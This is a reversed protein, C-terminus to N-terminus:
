LVRTRFSVALITLMLKLKKSRKCLSERTRIQSSTVCSSASRDSCDFHSPAKSRKTQNKDSNWRFISSTSSNMSTPLCNQNIVFKDNQISLDPQDTLGHYTDLHKAKKLPSQPVDICCFIRILDPITEARHTDREQGRFTGCAAALFLFFPVTTHETVGHRM